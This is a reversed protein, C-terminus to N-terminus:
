ACTHILQSYHFEHQKQSVNSVQHIWFIALPPFQLGKDDRLDGFTGPLTLGRDVSQLFLAEKPGFGILISFLAVLVADPM